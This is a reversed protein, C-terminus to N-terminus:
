VFAVRRVPTHEPNQWVPRYVDTLRISSHREIQQWFACVEKKDREWADFLFELDRLVSALMEWEDAQALQWPVETVARTRLGQQEYFPATVPLRTTQFYNAVSAHIQRRTAGNARYRQQIADRL